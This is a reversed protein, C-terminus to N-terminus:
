ELRVKYRYFMREAPVVNTYVVPYGNGPLEVQGTVNSWAVPYLRESQELTYLRSSYLDYGTGSVPITNFRVVVEGNEIGIDIFALGADDVTPDTGLGFERENTLTDGDGDGDPAVQGIDPNIQIEWSDVLGDGDLDQVATNRAAPTGGTFSRRWSAPLANDLDASVLELAAGRTQPWPADASYTVADVLNSCIDYIEIAAGDNPLTLSPIDVVRTSYENASLFVMPWDWIRMGPYRQITNGSNLGPYSNTLVSFADVIVLESQPALMTGHPLRYREDGVHMLWWSLDVTNSGKNYLELYEGGVGPDYMIESILVTGPDYVGAGWIDADKDSWSGNM